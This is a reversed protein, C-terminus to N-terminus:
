KGNMSLEDVGTRQHAKGDDFRFTVRAQVVQTTSADALKRPEYKWKRSAVQAARGFVQSVNGGEIRSDVVDGAATVLLSLDVWGEIGRMRGEQPYAPEVFRVLKRPATTSEARAAAALSAAANRAASLAAEAADVEVGAFGIERAQSLLRAAGDFDKSYAAVQASAVLREGLVKVGQGIGPFAKDTRVLQDLYHKASDQAPELLRNEATRQLVLQLLDSKMRAQEAGALAVDLAALDASAVGLDKADDLLIRAVDLEGREIAQNVDALAKVAPDRQAQVPRSMPRAAVIPKAPKIQTVVEAESAAQSERSLQMQRELQQRLQADMSPLRGDDPLVRRAGQLAAITAAFNGAALGAQAQQVFGNALKQIGAKASANAPDLALVTSYYHLASGEPPDIAHGAALAHKAAVLNTAILQRPDIDPLRQFMAWWVAGGVIAAAALVMIWSPRPIGQSKHGAATPPRGATESMGAVVAPQIAFIAEDSAVDSQRPTEHSIPPPAVPERLVTASAEQLQVPKGSQETSSRCSVPMTTGIREAHSLRKPKSANGSIRRSVRGSKGGSVGSVDGEAHSRGARPRPSSTPKAEGDRLRTAHQTAYRQNLTQIFGPATADDPIRAAERVREASSRLEPATIDM